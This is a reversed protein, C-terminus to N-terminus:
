ATDAASSRPTDCVVSRLSLPLQVQLGLCRDSGVAGVARPEVALRSNRLSAHTLM